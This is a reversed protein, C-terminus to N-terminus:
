NRLQDKLVAYQAKSEEVKTKDSEDLTAKTDNTKTLRLQYGNDLEAWNASTYVPTLAEVSDVYNNLSTADEQAQTAPAKCAIFGTIVLAAGTILKLKTM